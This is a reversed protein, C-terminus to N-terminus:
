SEEGLLRISNQFESIDCVCLKLKRYRFFDTPFLDPSYPLQDITTKVKIESIRDCNIKYM